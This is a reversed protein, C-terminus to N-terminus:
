VEVFDVRGSIPQCTYRIKRIKITGRTDANLYGGFGVYFHCWKGNRWDINSNNTNGYMKVEGFPDERSYAGMVMTQQLVKKAPLPLGCVFVLSDCGTAEHTNQCKFKTWSTGRGQYNNFGAKYANGSSTPDLSSKWISAALNQYNGPIAPANNQDSSYICMGADVQLWSGYDSGGPQAGATGTIPITDFVLELKILFKEPDIWHSQQGAPLVMGSAAFPNIFAKQILFFGNKTNGTMQFAGNVGTGGDGHMEVTLLDGDGDTTKTTTCYQGDTAGHRRQWTGDDPDVGLEIWDKYPDGGGGGGGGGGADRTPFTRTSTTAPSTRAM